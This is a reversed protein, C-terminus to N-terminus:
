FGPQQQWWLLTRQSASGVRSQVVFACAIYYLATCYWGAGARQCYQAATGGGVQDGEMTVCNLDTEKAVRAAVDLSRCVLTKGFIQLLMIASLGATPVIIAFSRQSECMIQLQSWVGRMYVRHCCVVHVSGCGM